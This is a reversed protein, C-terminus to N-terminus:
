VQVTESVSTLKEASLTMRPSITVLMACFSRKLTWRDASVSKATSGSRDVGDLPIDVDIGDAGRREASGDKDSEELTVLERELECARLENLTPATRPIEVSEDLESFECTGERRWRWSDSSLLGLGM